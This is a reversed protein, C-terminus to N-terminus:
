SGDPSGVGDRAPVRIVLRNDLRRAREADGHAIVDDHALITHWSAHILIIQRTGCALSRV